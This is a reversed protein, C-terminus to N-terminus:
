RKTGRAQNVELSINVTAKGTKSSQITVLEDVKPINELSNKQHILFHKSQDGLRQALFNPTEAVIRGQSKGLPADHIQAAPLLELVKSKLLEKEDNQAQKYEAIQQSYAKEAWEPINNALNIIKGHELAMVFQHGKLYDTNDLVMARDAYKTADAVLPLVREYRAKVKDEPVGHGGKEVRNEIRQMALDANKLHVHYLEVEFGSEKAQKVLEIKSPHSFVTEAIFSRKHQISLDREKEAWEQAIRAEADVGTRGFTKQQWIDANIFVPANPVGEFKPLIYSNILTTKGAGNGGAVIIALPSLHNKEKAM